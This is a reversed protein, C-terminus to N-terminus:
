RRFVSRRNKEGWILLIMGSITIGVGHTVVPINGAIFWIVSFLVGITVLTFGAAIGIVFKVASTIIDRIGM